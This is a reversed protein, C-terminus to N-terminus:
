RGAALFSDGPGIGLLKAGDPDLSVQGDPAIAVRGYGSRFEGLLGTALMMKLGEVNEEVSDLVLARAERVTRIQDTPVSMTPGGDFIDVYGDATFGEHELM